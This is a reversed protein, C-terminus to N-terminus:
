RSRWSSSTRGLNMQAIPAVAACFRKPVVWDMPRNARCNEPNGRCAPGKCTGGPTGAASGPFSFPHKPLCSSIAASSPGALAPNPLPSTSPLRARTGLGARERARFELPWVRKPYARLALYHHPNLFSRLSGLRSRPAAQHMVAPNGRLRGAAGPGPFVIAPADRAPRASGNAAFGRRARGLRSSRRQPPMVAACPKLRRKSDELIRRFTRLGEEGTCGVDIILADFPNQQFRDLARTPEGAM